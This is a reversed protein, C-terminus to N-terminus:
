EQRVFEWTTRDPPPAGTWNRVRYREQYVVTQLEPSVYYTLTTKVTETHDSCVVRYADHEAPGAKV